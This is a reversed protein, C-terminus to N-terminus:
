SQKETRLFKVGRRMQAYASKYGVGAREAAEALAIVEGQYQVWVTNRRNRAQQKPTAWVCNGPEYHGDNDLREISYGSAPQPGMDQLFVAFSRCWADCVTIGRGGYSEFYPDERFYCRRRMACWVGFEPTHKGGATGGHLRRAKGNRASAERQRCSCSRTGGSKLEALLRESVTRAECQCEVRVATHLSWGRRMKRDPVRWPEAPGLVKWRGFLTGPEPQKARSRANPREGQLQRLCGCSQTNGGLLHRAAVLASGGCDCRCSWAVKGSRHPGQELVLLRGFRQGSLDKVKPAMLRDSLNTV